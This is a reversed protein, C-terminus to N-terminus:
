TCKKTLDMVFYMKEKVEKTVKNTSQLKNTANKIEKEKEIMKVKYLQKM